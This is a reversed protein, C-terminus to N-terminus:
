RQTIYEMITEATKVDVILVDILHARLAGIISEVKHFGGAVVIRQKATRIQEISVNVLENEFYIPSERGQIDFYHTAIDGVVRKNELEDLYKGDVIGDRFLPSRALDYGVSSIVVDLNSWLEQVRRYEESRKIASAEESNLLFSLYIPIASAGCSEAFTHVIHNINFNRDGVMSLGGSLPVIKWHPRLANATSHALEYMTTGWGFGITLDADPFSDEIFERARNALTISLRDPRVVPQTLVLNELSFETTFFHELTNAQKESVTPPVVQVRVMGREEAMKIYKGVQVRSVGLSNAIERQLKKDVYYQRVVDYLFWDDMITCLGM